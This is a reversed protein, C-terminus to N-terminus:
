YRNPSIAAEAKRGASSRDAQWIKHDRRGYQLAASWTLLERSESRAAASTSPFLEFHPLFAEFAWLLVCVRVISKQLRIRHSGLCINPASRPGPVPLCIIECAISMEGLRNWCVAASRLDNSLVSVRSYLAQLVTFRPCHLLSVLSRCRLTM